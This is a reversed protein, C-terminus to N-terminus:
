ARVWVRTSVASCSGSSCPWSSRSIFFATGRNGTLLTTCSPISHSNEAQARVRLRISILVFAYDACSTRKCISLRVSTLLSSKFLLFCAYCLTVPSPKRMHDKSLEKKITVNPLSPRQPRVSTPLSSKFLLFCLYCLTVPSPKRAEVRQRKSM